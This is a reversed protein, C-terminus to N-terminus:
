TAYTAGAWHGPGYLSSVQAVRFGFSTAPGGFDTSQEAATYTAAPVDSELTRKLTVGDYIEIRYQEPAWDLPANDSAWSDTDARSRRVWSLAVDGAEDV